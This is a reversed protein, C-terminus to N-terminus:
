KLTHPLPNMGGFNIQGTRRPTLQTQISNLVDSIFVLRVGSTACLRTIQQLTEPILNTVSILIIGVDYQRVLTPLDGTGGLVWCGGVRMGQLAPDDDVIGVISIAQQLGGRQLLWSAIQGGEGAGLILVREGLSAVKGRPSLWRSSFSSILRLRYRAALFGLLTLVGILVIMEAPLPRLHLRSSAPLLRNMALLCLTVTTNSLTLLLGDEASAGSWVIRDLGISLNVSSFLMALLFALIALPELGWNIPQVGRWALGAISVSILAVALDVVFWSIHRRMLRSIPGAFLLSEPIRQRTMRLILIAITWFLVDLDSIFSHNRVYLRDLRLKDPLISKFYTGMVNETALLAEEDHYLVSAPSTIGPAVSLIERRANPPWNVTIEPDEPRPGVLSMEGRLVNWLQPLENLKTHRLWRGLPTIRNDDRATVPAGTYSEPREYMTRFKIIQFLKGNQGTRRGRYFVPGPSDHKILFAIAAFAPSLVILGLTSALIDFSRKTGTKWSSHLGSWSIKTYM